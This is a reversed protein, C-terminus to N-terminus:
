KSVRSELSLVMEQAVQWLGAMPQDSWPGVLLPMAPWIPPRLDGGTLLAAQRGSCNQSPREGESSSWALPGIWFGISIPLVWWAIIRM